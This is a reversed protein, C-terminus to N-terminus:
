GDGFAERFTEEAAAYMNPSVQKLLELAEIRGSIRLQCYNAWYERSRYSSNEGGYAQMWYGREHGGYLTEGCSNLTLASMADSVCSIGPIGSHEHAFKVYAGVREANYSEDSYHKGGFWGTGNTEYGVVRAMAEFDANRQEQENGLHDIYQSANVIHYGKFGELDVTKDVAGCDIRHSMEHIVTEADSQTTLRIKDEVPSFYACGRNSVDYGVERFAEEYAPRINEPMSAYINRMEACESKSLGNMGFNIEFFDGTIEPSRLKRMDAAAYTEKDVWGSEIKTYTRGDSTFGAM